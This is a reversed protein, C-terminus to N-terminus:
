TLPSFIEFSGYSLLTLQKELWELISIIRLM